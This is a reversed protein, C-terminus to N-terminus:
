LRIAVFLPFSFYWKMTFSVSHIEHILWWLSQPSPQICNRLRMLNTMMFLDFSFYYYYKLSFPNADLNPAIFMSWNSDTTRIKVIFEFSLFMWRYFCESCLWRRNRNLNYIYVFVSICKPFQIQNISDILENKEMEIKPKTKPTAPPTPPPKHKNQGFESIWNWYIKYFTPFLTTQNM